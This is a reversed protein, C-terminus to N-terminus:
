EKTQFIAQQSLLQINYFITDYKEKKKVKEPPQYNKLEGENVGAQM